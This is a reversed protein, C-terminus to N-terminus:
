YGGMAGFNRTGCRFEDCGKVNTLVADTPQQRANEGRGWWAGWGGKGGAM